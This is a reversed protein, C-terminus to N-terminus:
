FCRTCNLFKSVFVVESCMKCITKEFVLILRVCRRRLCWFQFVEVRWIWMGNNNRSRQIMSAVGTGVVVFGRKTIVGNEVAKLRTSLLHTSSTNLVLCELWLTQQSSRSVPATRGCEFLFINEKTNLKFM